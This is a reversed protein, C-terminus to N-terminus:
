TAAPLSLGQDTPAWCGMVPLIVVPSVRSIAKQALASLTSPPGAAAVMEEARTCCAPSGYSAARCPETLIPPSHAMCVTGPLAPM